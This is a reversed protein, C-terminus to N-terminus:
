QPAAEEGFRKALSTLYSDITSTQGFVYHSMFRFLVNSVEGDERITVRTGGNEAAFTYTWQGTYGLDTDRIRTVMRQAPVDEVLEYNVTGHKGVERFYVPGGERAEVDMQKVDARWKPASAFDRVVAYVDEPSQRLVISRSAVHTKPLRSGILAAVGGLLAIGAIVGVVIFIVLKMM